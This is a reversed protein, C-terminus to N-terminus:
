RIDWEVMRSVICQNLRKRELREKAVQKVTKLAYRKDYRGHYQLQQVNKMFAKGQAEISALSLYQADNRDDERYNPNETITAM